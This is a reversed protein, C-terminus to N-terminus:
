CLNRPCGPELNLNAIHSCASDLVAIRASGFCQGSGHLPVIDVTKPRPSL